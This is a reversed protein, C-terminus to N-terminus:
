GVARVRPDRFVWLPDSGGLAVLRKASRRRKAGLKESLKALHGQVFSQSGLIVGDSLYRMRCRLREPLSLEGKQEEVV